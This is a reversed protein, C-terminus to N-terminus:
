PRYIPNSGSIFDITGGNVHKGQLDSLISSIMAINYEIKKDNPLIIKIDDKTYMNIIDNKQLNIKNIKKYLNNKKMSELLYLLRKKTEENEFKISKDDNLKYKIEVVVNEENGDLKEIQHILNGKTDIYCYKNEDKITAAIEKEIILIKLKNPLSRKVKVSEIYKNEMLSKEMEKANYMFINKDEKIDLVKIIEDKPVRKNGEVKVNTSNFLNSNLTIYIFIIIMLMFSLLIMLKSTNHKKYKKM